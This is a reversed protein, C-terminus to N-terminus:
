WSETRDRATLYLVREKVPEGTLEEWCEAYLDVQARYVALRRELQMPTEPELTRRILEGLAVVGHRHDREVRAELRVFGECARELARVRESRGDKALADTKM